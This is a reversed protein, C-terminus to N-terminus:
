KKKRRGEEEVRRIIEVLYDVPRGLPYDPDERHMANVWGYVTQKLEPLAQITNKIKTRAQRRQRKDTQRWYEGSLEKERTRMLEQVLQYYRTRVSQHAQVYIRNNITVVSYLGLKFAKGIPHELIKKEM